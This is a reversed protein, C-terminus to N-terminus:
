KKFQEVNFKQLEKTTNVITALLEIYKETDINKGLKDIDLMNDRIKAVDSKIINCLDSINYFKEKLESM